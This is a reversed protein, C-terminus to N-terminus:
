PSTRSSPSPTPTSSGRPASPPSRRGPPTASRTKLVRRSVADIYSTRAGHGNVTTVAWALRTAGKYPLSVLSKSLVRGPAGVKAAASAAASPRVKPTTTNLKGAKIRCDDITITPTDTFDRHWGWWGGPVPNGGKMQQYWRHLGLMSRRIQYLEVNAPHLVPDTTTTTVCGNGAKATAAAAAAASPQQKAAAPHATASSNPGAAALALAAVGIGLRRATM